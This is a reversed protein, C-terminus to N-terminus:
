ERELFNEISNNICICRDKSLCDESNPDSIGTGIDCLFYFDHIWVTKRAQFANSLLIEHGFYKINHFIISTEEGRVQADRSLKQIIARAHPQTRSRLRNVAYDAETAQGYEHVSTVVSVEQGDEKLLDAQLKAIIEAGGVIEPSYHDSAIIFSKVNSAM